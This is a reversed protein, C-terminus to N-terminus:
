PWRRPPSPRTGSSASAPVAKTPKGEQYTVKRGPPIPRRKLVTLELDLAIQCDAGDTGVEVEGTPQVHVAHDLGGAVPVERRGRGVARREEVVQAARAHVAAVAVPLVESAAPRWGAVTAVERVAPRGGPLRVAGEAVPGPVGKRLCGRVGHNALRRERRRGVREGLPESAHGVGRACTGVLRVEGPRARRAARDVRCRNGAPTAVGDRSVVGVGPPGTAGTTSLPVPPSGALRPV